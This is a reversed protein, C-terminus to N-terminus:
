AVSDMEGCVKNATFFFKIRKRGREMVMMNKSYRWRLRQLTFSWIIHVHQFGRGM